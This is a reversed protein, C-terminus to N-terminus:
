VLGGNELIREIGDIRLLLLAGEDASHLPRHPTVDPCVQALKQVVRDTLQPANVLMGGCLGLVFRNTRMKAMLAQVTRVLEGAANELIRDAVVDQGAMAAVCGALTAIQDPTREPAYLYDLLEDIDHLHLFELVAETLQTRRARGDHEDFIAQLGRIAIYYGSGPDGLKYGWGNVRHIRKDETIGYAIAGTGSIVVAGNLGDNAGAIAAVGDSCVLLRRDYGLDSFIARITRVDAPSDIGAGAFCVQEVHDLNIGGDGCLRNLLLAIQAKVAGVEVSHHNTGGTAARGRQVFAGVCEEALIGKTSTGGSDIGIAYAM